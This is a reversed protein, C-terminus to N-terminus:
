AARRTRYEDYAAQLGETGRPPEALIEAPAHDRNIRRIMPAPTMHGLLRHRARALDEGKDHGSTYAREALARAQDAALEAILGARAEAERIAQDAELQAAEISALTNTLTRRTEELKAREETIRAEVNTNRQRLQAATNTLKRGEAYLAAIEQRQEELAARAKQLETTKGRTYTM